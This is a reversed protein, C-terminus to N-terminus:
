QEIFAIGKEDCWEKLNPVWSAALTYGRLNADFLAGYVKQMREKVFDTDGTILATKIKKDQNFTCRITFETPKAEDVVPPVEGGWDSHAVGTDERQEGSSVGLPQQPFANSPLGDKVEQPEEQTPRPDERPMPQEVEKVIADYESKAIDATHEYGHEKLLEKVEADSWGHKRTIAWFRKAQPQTITGEAKRTPMSPAQGNSSPMEEAPTAEVGALVMIRSFPNRLVRGVARTQAMARLAHLPRSEWTPEDDCCMADAESIVQGTAAVVAQAHAEWGRIKGPEAEFEVYRSETIRAFVGFFSALTTWHEVLPYKKGRIDAPKVLKFIEKRLLEAVETAEKMVVAPRRTLQLERSPALALAVESDIPTVVAEAEIPQPSDEVKSPM